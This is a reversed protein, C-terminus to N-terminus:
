SQQRAMLTLKRLLPQLEPPAAADGVHVTHPQQDEREIVLKYQFRDAGAAATLNEPLEFLKAADIMDQLTRAEDEPLAAMDITARVFMGTFGGSREFHIRM